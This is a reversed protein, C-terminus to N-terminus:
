KGGERFGPHIREQLLQRLSHELACREGDWQTAARLPREAARSAATAAAATPVTMVVRSRRLALRDPSTAWSNKGNRTKKSVGGLLDIAQRLRFCWQMRVSIEMADLVSVSSAQGTIAAFM